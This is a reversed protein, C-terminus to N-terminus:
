CVINNSGRAVPCAMALHFLAGTPHRVENGLANAPWCYPGTNERMAGTTSAMLARDSGRGGRCVQQQRRPPIPDQLVYRSAPGYGSDVYVGVCFVRCSDWTAVPGGRGGLGGLDSRYGSAVVYGAM